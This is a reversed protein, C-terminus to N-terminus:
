SLLFRSPACALPLAPPQTSTSRPSHTEINTTRYISITHAHLARTKTLHVVKSSRAHPTHTSDHVEHTCAVRPTRRLWLVTSM